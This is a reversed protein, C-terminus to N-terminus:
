SIFLFLILMSSIFNFDEMSKEFLKELVMNQLFLLLKGYCLIKDPLIFFDVPM